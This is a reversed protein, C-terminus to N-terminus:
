TSTSAIRQSEILESPQSLRVTNEFAPMKRHIWFILTTAAASGALLGYAAAIPGLSAALSLSVAIAIGIRLVRMQFLTRSHERAWLAYSPVMALSSVLMDVALVSITGGQGAYAEGYLLRMIQPGFALLTACFLTTMAIVVLTSKWLVRRLEAASGESIAVAIRPMLINNLGLVLPNLVCLITACAAFLGTAAIGFLIALLWHMVYANLTTATQDALVWKSFGWNQRWAKRVLSRGLVFRSRNSYLWSAAIVGCSLGVAAFATAATLRGTVALGGMLTMQMVVVLSDLALAANMQLDAFALRRGFDRLLLFPVTAALALFVRALGAPGFGLMTLIAAVAMGITSFVSLLACHALSGGTYERRAQGHMRHVYITYPVTVVAQLVTCLLVVITFALSYVGLERPGCLRAILVTTFFSAGSVIMQDALAVTAKRATAGFWYRGLAALRERFSLDIPPDLELSADNNTM